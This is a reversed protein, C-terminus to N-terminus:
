TLHIPRLRGWWRDKGAVFPDSAFLIGRKELDIMYHLHDPLLPLLESMPKVPTTLVAYLLKQLMRSNLENIEDQLASM